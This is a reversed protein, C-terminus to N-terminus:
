AVDTLTETISISIIVILTYTRCSRNWGALDTLLAPFCCCQSGVLGFFPAFKHTLESAAEGNDAM